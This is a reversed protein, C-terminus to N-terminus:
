LEQRNCTSLAVQLEANHTQLGTIKLYNQWSMYATPFQVLCIFWLLLGGIASRWDTKKDM